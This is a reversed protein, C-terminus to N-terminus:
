GINLAAIFNLFWRLTGPMLFKFLLEINFKQLTIISSITLYILVHFAVWDVPRGALVNFFFESM